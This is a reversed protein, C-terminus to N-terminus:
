WEYKNLFMAKVGHEESRNQFLKLGRAAAALYEPKKYVHYARILLSMAQGQAMASYRYLLYDYM